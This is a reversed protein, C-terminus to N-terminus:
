SLIFNPPWKQVKKDANEALPKHHEFSQCVVELIIKGRCTHCNKTKLYKGFKKKHELLTLNLTNFQSLMLKDGSLQGRSLEDGVVTERSM